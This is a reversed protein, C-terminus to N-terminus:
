AKPALAEQVATLMNDVNYAKTMWLRAGAEKAKAKLEPGAETTIMFIPATTLKEDKARTIMGIGDLNPMNVDCIILAIDKETRLKELGDMGDVCELVTYGAGELAHRLQFRVTKSDDVVLIKASMAKGWNM